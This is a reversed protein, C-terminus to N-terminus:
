LSEGGRQIVEVVKGNKIIWLPIPVYKAWLRKAQRFRATELGKVDEYHVEGNEVVMFDPRYSFDCTIHITPQCSFWETQGSSYMMKLIIYREHEAKSRFKFGDFVILKANYKHRKKKTIEPLDKINIRM